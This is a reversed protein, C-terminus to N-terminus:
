ENMAELLPAVNNFLSSIDAPKVSFDASHVLQNMSTVSLIGTPQSLEAMAGHLKKTMDPDTNNKTLHKTIGHLAQALTKPKGDAKTMSLGDARHDHCYAKASIEFMSRLLFCFAIPTRELNLWVAEQRLTEVKDRNNGRITMAGLRKTVSKPDRFSLARPKAAKKKPKVPTSPAFKAAPASTGAKPIQPPGFGYRDTAFDISSDRIHKFGLTEAGIDYLMRELGVRYSSKALKSPYAAVLEPANAFGLRPAIKGLAENLVTLPYEGAWFAKQDNSLNTGNKLYKELLDLGSETGGSKDRNHRATAVANWDSRGAKQGKGHTRAVIRDVLESEASSYVACPVREISAKREQSLSEIKARLEEPIDFGNPQILGLVLKIAGIRQNGEKVIHDGGAGDPALVLINETLLYGDDLLSDMLEWFHKSDVALMAQIAASENPQPLTRFNKRDLTM